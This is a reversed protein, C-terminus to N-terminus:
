LIIIYIINKRAETPRPGRTRSCQAFCVFLYNFINQYFSSRSLILINPNFVQWNWLFIFFIIFIHFCHIIFSSYYYISYLISSYINSEFTEKFYMLLDTVEIKIKHQAHKIIIIEMLYYQLWQFNWLRIIM